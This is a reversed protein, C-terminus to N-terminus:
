SALKRCGNGHCRAPGVPDRAVARALEGRARCRGTRCAPDPGRCARGLGALPRSDRCEIPTLDSERPDFNVAVLETAGGGVVEYFGVQDLLVDDSGAGLGLAKEGRPDFIQGGALGLARVALTSGLDAESSFGAGGLLHNALGAMLPVFVPQVPLDNWERDLSSTFLLVRGSGLQREILLPTSDALRVLVRDEPAPEVSLRAPSAHRACTTSAACRPTLATSTGSRVHQARREDAGHVRPTRRDRAADHAGGVATRGRATVQRGKRCLGKALAGEASGLLGLDTVVVFSYTALPKEGLANPAKIEPKLSLAALTELAASTFLAGRGRTDASVILVSRPEPRKLSLYRQDDAPCITAPSSRPRHDRNPGSSLDLAAFM